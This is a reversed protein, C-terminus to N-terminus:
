IQAFKRIIIIIFGPVSTNLFLRNTLRTPKFRMECCIMSRPFVCLYANNEGKVFKYKLVPGMDLNFKMQLILNIACSM